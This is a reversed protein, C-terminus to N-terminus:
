LKKLVGIIEKIDPLQSIEYIKVFVAEGREDLIINVRESFGEKDRFIGYLRAVQGHPWFDSLVPFWVRGTAMDMEHTWAFLTPRNDVSIGLLIANHQDFVEKFANYGPWQSSCVPTWAAPVFSIVVNKKGRYDSLSVKGGAVSPLTFDPARDGVKLTPVSDTPKLYGPDYISGKFIESTMPQAGEAVGALAIAAVALAAFVTKAAFNM